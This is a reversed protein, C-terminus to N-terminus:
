HQPRETPIISSQPPDTGTLESVLFSRVDGAQNGSHLKVFATMRASHVVTGVDGSESRVWAGPEFDTDAPITATM